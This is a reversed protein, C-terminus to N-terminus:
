HTLRDTSQQLECQLRQILLNLEVRRGILKEKAATARAASIRQMTRQREALAERQAATVSPDL